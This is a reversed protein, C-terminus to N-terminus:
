AGRRWAHVKGDDYGIVVTYVVGGSRVRAVWFEAGGSKKYDVAEVITSVPPLGALRAQEMAKSTAVSVDIPPPMARGYRARRRLVSSQRRRYSEQCM